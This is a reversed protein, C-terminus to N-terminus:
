DTAMGQILQEKDILNAPKLIIDYRRDQLLKEIRPYNLYVSESDLVPQVREIVDQPATRLLLRM